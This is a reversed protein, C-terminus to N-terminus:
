EILPRVSRRWNVLPESQTAFALITDAGDHPARASLEGGLLLREVSAFCTPWNAARRPPRRAAAGLRLRPIAIM